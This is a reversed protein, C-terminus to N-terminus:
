RVEFESDIAADLIEKTYKKAEIKNDIKDLRYFLFDDIQLQNFTNHASIICERSHTTAFIQVNFQKAAEYISGWLKNMVSYHIGNEIEDIFIIGNQTNAIALVISCIKVLGEGMIVLPFLQKTELEGYIIPIGATTLLTLQKLRPEIIKLAKFLVDQQQNRVVNSFREAEENLNPRSRSALFIASYPNQTVISPALVVGKDTINIESKIHENKENIYEYELGRIFGTMDTSAFGNKTQSIPPIAKKRIRIKLTQEKLNDSIGKFIIENEEDFDLFLTNWPTKSQLDINFALTELGRFINVNFALNPNAAGAFLFMGELLATKGVNNMGAILNIRKLPSISFEQFCRFNKLIFSTLM